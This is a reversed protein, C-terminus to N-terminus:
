PYLRTTVWTAFVVVTQQKVNPIAYGTIVLADKPNDLSTKVRRWRSESVSVM